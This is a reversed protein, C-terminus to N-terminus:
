FPIAPTNTVWRTGAGPAELEASGAESGAEGSERSEGDEWRPSKASNKWSDEWGHDVFFEVAVGDVIEDGEITVTLVVPSEHLEDVGGFDLTQTPDTLEAQGGHGIRAGFMGAEGMAQAHHPGSGTDQIMEGAGGFNGGLLGESDATSGKEVIDAMPGEAMDEFLKGHDVVLLPGAAHKEIRLAAEIPDEDAMAGAQGLFDDSDDLASAVGEVEALNDGALEVSVAEIVEQAVTVHGAHFVTHKIQLAENPHQAQISRAALNHDGSGADVGDFAIKLTAEVHIGLDIEMLGHPGGFGHQPKGQFPGGFKGGGMPQTFLFPIGEAPNKKRGSKPKKGGGGGSGLGGAPEVELEVIVEVEVIVPDISGHFAPAAVAIRDQGVKGGPDEVSPEEFGHIDGTQFAEFGAHFFGPGDDGGGSTIGFIMEIHIFAAIHGVAGVVTFETAVAFDNEDFGELEISLVLIDGFDTLDYCPQGSGTEDRAPDHEGFIEAGCVESGWEDAEEGVLLGLIREQWEM